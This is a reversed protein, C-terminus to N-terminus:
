AISAYFFRVADIKRGTTKSPNVLVDESFDEDSDSDHQPESCFFCSKKKSKSEVIEM